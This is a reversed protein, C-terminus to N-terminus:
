FSSLLWLFVIAKLSHRVNLHPARSGIMPSAKLYIYYKWHRPTSTSRTGIAFLQKLSKEFFGVSTRIMQNCCPTSSPPQLPEGNLGFLFLFVPLFCCPMEISTVSLHSIAAARTVDCMLLAVVVYVCLPPQLSLTTDGGSPM